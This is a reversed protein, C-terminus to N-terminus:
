GGGGGGGAPQPRRAIGVRALVGSVAGSGVGLAEQVYEAAFLLTELTRFLDGADCALEVFRGEDMPPVVLVGASSSSSSSSGKAFAAVPLVACCPHIMDVDVVETSSAVRQDGVSAGALHDKYYLADKFDFGLRYGHHVVEAGRVWSCGLLGDPRAAVGRRLGEFFGGGGGSGSTSDSDSDGEDLSLASAFFLVHSPAGVAAAAPLRRLGEQVADLYSAVSHDADSPSVGSWAFSTVTTTTEEADEGASAASGSRRGCGTGMWGLTRVLRAKRGGGEADGGDDLAVVVHAPRSGVGGGGGRRRERRCSERAAALLGGDYGAADVDADAACAALTRCPAAAALFRALRAASDPVGPMDAYVAALRFPASASPPQPPPVPPPSPSPSPSPSRSSVSEAGDGTGGGGGGVEAEFPHAYSRAYERFTRGSPFAALAAAEASGISRWQFVLRPDAATVEWSVAWLWDATELSFCLEAAAAAAAAAAGDGQTPAVSSAARSPVRSPAASPPPAPARTHRARRPDRVCAAFASASDKVKKRVTSTAGGIIGALEVQNGVNRHHQASARSTLPFCAFVNFFMFVSNSLFTGVSRTNGGGGGGFGGGPRMLAILKNMPELYHNCVRILGEVYAVETMYIEKMVRHVAALSPAAGAPHTASAPSSSYSASMSLRSGAQRRRASSGGLQERRSRRAVPQGPSAVPWSISISGETPAASGVGGSGDAGNNTGNANEEGNPARLPAVPFFRRANRPPLTSLSIVSAAGGSSGAGVAAEDEETSQWCGM